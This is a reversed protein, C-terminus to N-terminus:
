HRECPQWPLIGTVPKSGFVKVIGVQMINVVLRWNKEDNITKNIKKKKKKKPRTYHENLVVDCLWVITSHHLFYKWTSYNRKWNKRYVSRRM